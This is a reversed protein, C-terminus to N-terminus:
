KFTETLQRIITTPSKREYLIDYLADLIPMKVKYRENIEHICKTGYYGEAIMEMELQAIKVSYGKGIMTGFTRNRSFRSYATVLLDGLYVSDTVDRELSHVSNLFNRMEEIANCIFVALFNDGYKMGHCIGAVIAYVNKLVSAYEIGRVDKCCSNNLYPNQFVSSIAKAHEINSCALTIYSLRELAIEEAHCPGGIVAINEMPVNYYEAFYDAILMNEDPVIGKIASIIFKENLPTTVKMLHQRLFPSPTAFILTDSDQIVENIDTYFNIKDTDFKVASLYGPNHGMKIFDDVQDQRRMYWNISDQTSLVIKALATAWSGGGMIAIKGPLNM